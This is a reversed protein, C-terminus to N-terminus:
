RLTGSTHPLSAGHACVTRRGRRCQRLPRAKEDIRHPLVADDRRRVVAKPVVRHAVLKEDLKLAHEAVKLGPRDARVKAPLIEASTDYFAFSRKREAHWHRALLLLRLRRLCIGLFVLRVGAEHVARM